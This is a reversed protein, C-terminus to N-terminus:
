LKLPLHTPKLGKRLKPFSIQFIRKKQREVSWGDIDVSWVFQFFDKKMQAPTWDPFSRPGGLATSLETLHFQFRVRSSLNDHINALTTNVCALFCLMSTAGTQLPSKYFFICSLKILLISFPSTDSYWQGGTKSTQILWNQLYFCFMTLQSVASELNGAWVCLRHPDLM